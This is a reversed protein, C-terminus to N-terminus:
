KKTLEEARLWGQVYLRGLPTMGKIEELVKDLSLNKGDGVITVATKNNIAAEIDKILPEAKQLMERREALIARQDDCPMFCHQTRELNNESEHLCRCFPIKSQEPFLSM